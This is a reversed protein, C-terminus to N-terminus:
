RSGMCPPEGERRICAAQGNSVLELTGDLEPHYLHRFLQSSGQARDHFTQLAPLEEQHATTFIIAQPQWDTFLPVDLSRQWPYALVTVPQVGALLSQAPAMSGAGCLLLSTAGYDMRLTLAAGSEGGGEGAGVALVTLAVGDLELRQGSQARHVPAHQEELLRAWERSMDNPSLPLPALVLEARYRALAAIQGPLRQDDSRTLVVADLTRKWFPLTQGLHLPLLVPDAGGDILIHEGGPTQILIADGPTDFFFVHLYGDPRQLWALVAVLLAASGSILALRLWTRRLASPKHYLSM